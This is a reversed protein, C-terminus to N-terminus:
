SKKKVLSNDKKTLVRIELTPPPNVSHFTLDQAPAVVHIIKDKESPRRNTEILVYIIEFHIKKQM